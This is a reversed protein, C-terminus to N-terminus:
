KNKKLLLAIALLPAISFVGYLLLSANQAGIIGGPETIGGMNSVLGAIAAGFATAMLQVTTVSASALEEEGKPAMSFVSTLLHPWGMGIGVGILFLFLCNLILFLSTSHNNTGAIWTLGVLGVLMFVAGFRIIKAVSSTKVGSFLLSSFTWGFAILVTLYGSKLPSFGNIIQAFYPVFIEISTAITLLTMIAYTTGLPSSLKYAGTPLLRVSNKKEAVMLIYLLLLALIVGSVNAIINELISGISVSLVALVLLVLKLYPILPANNKSKHVPLIISSIIFILICIVLLSGFAWRWQDNEAFIGGIFPGSFAAIGWMGSILAMARSWLRKDFVIRVMAYSLAFLLGGGLGQIFRGMLLIYMSPAFACCLSGLFFLIIATQYAKRPGLLSLRNASIVSGIISAVVFLTTNWAYYELGGIEEIISPMVTTALYINTAHLMVGLALAIAKIGNGGIFLAKWSATESLSTTQNITSM